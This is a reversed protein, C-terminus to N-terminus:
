IGGLWGMLAAFFGWCLCGALIVFSVNRVRQSTDAFCIHAFAIATCGLAMGLTSAKAILMASEM